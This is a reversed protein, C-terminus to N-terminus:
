ALRALKYTTVNSRLARATARGPPLTRAIASQLIRIASNFFQPETTSRQIRLGCDSNRLRM